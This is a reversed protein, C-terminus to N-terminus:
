PPIVVDRCVHGLIAPHPDSSDYLTPHPLSSPSPSPSAPQRLPSTSSLRPTPYTKMTQDYHSPSGSEETISPVSPSVYLLLTSPCADLGRGSLHFSCLLFKSARQTPRSILQQLFRLLSKIKRLLLVSHCRRILAAMLWKQCARGQGESGERGM